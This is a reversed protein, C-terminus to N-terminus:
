ASKKMTDGIVTFLQRRIKSNGTDKYKGPYKDTM